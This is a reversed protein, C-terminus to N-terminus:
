YSMGMSPGQDGEFAGSKNKCEEKCSCLLGCPGTGDPHSTFNKSQEVKRGAKKIKTTRKKIEPDASSGFLLVRSKKVM